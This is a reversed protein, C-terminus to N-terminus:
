EDQKEGLRGDQSAPQQMSGFMEQSNLLAFPQRCPRDTEQMAM